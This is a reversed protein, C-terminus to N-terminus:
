KTVDPYYKKLAKPHMDVHTLQMDEPVSIM